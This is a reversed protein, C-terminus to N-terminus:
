RRKRLFMSAIGMSLLGLTTGTEPVPSPAFEGVYGIFKNQSNNVFTYNFTGPTADFGDMTMVGSTVVNLFHENQNVISSTSMTYTFGGLSFVSNPNELKVPSDWHGLLGTLSYNEPFDGSSDMAYNFVLNVRDAEELVSNGYANQPTALGGVILHGQILAGSAGLTLAFLMTVIKTKM